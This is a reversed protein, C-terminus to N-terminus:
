NGDSQPGTSVVVQAPRLVRDHLQYGARLELLVQNAPVDASAQSQVAQHWKPDFVQGVAEIRQCGAARLAEHLQSAVMHVGQVWGSPGTEAAAASLARELNDLAELIGAILNWSAYKLQEDADRRARRRFNELDAQYRLARTEADQLQARLLDTQPTAPISSNLEAVALEALDSPNMEDGTGGPDTQNQPPNQPEAMTM